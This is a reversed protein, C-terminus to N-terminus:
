RLLDLSAKYESTQIKFLSLITHFLHDHSFAEKAKVHLSKEKSTDSFYFLAPIHKQESPAIMYPLGHLYIGNEGLSEGHDSAYILATEYKEENAKLLKIAENIVYDTYLITNDYTNRIEEQTCKELDQTDCTPTFKKFAEPYRQFYTPGHSGEQHLVIFTDEYVKDVNEQFDSLLVEDFEAGKYHVVDSVRKAINKDRGSNNDRWIVRVGTKMLVDVLNEYQEKESSWASREFKSFMCPLSIATATGCSSMNPLYVVDDRQALLPNTPKEYGGLSFNKARATEGVVFVVLKKKPTSEKKADTAIVQFTPKPKVSAYALKSASAIPFFPNLYMKMEKHNRFFSSYSKSLAMYTGGIVVFSVVAVLAKQVLEVRYARFQIRVRFVMWYVFLLAISLYFFLKPTLLGFAEEVDTQLVNILMDKDIVVGFSDIFYSSMASILVLLAVGIRFSLRHTLLLLINLAFLHLLVLVFPASFAVIYNKELLAFDYLKSFFTINFLASLAIALLFIIKQTKFHILLAGM